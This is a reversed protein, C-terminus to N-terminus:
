RPGRPSASRGHDLQGAVGGAEALTSERDTLPSRVSTALAFAATIADSQIAHGPAALPSKLTRAPIRRGRTTTTTM